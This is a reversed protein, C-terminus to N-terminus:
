AVEEAEDDEDREWSERVEAAREMLPVDAETLLREEDILVRDGWGHEQALEEHFALAQSYGGLEILQVFKLVDDRLDDDDSDLDELISQLFHFCGDREASEKTEHHRVDPQEDDEGRRYTMTWHKM